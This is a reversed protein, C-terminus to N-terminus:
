KQTTTASEFLNAFDRELVRPFLSNAPCVVKYISHLEATGNEPRCNNFQGINSYFLRYENAATEIGQTIAERDLQDPTLGRKHLNQAIAPLVNNAMARLLKPNPLLELHGNERYPVFIESFNRLDGSARDPYNGLYAASAAVLNEQVGIMAAQIDARVVLENATRLEAVTYPRSQIDYVEVLGAADDISLELVTDKDDNNFQPYFSQKAMYPKINENGHGFQSLLLNLHAPVERNIFAIFAATTAHKRSVGETTMAVSVEQSIEPLGRKILETIITAAHAPNIDLVKHYADIGDLVSGPITDIPYKASLTEKIREYSRDPSVAFYDNLEFGPKAGFEVGVHKARLWYADKIEEINSPNTDTSEIDAISFIPKLDDRICVNAKAVEPPPPSAHGNESAHRATRYGGLGDLYSTTPHGATSLARSRESLM